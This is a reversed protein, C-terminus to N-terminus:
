LGPALVVPLNAANGVSSSSYIIIILGQDEKLNKAPTLM